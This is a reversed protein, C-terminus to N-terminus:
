CADHHKCKLTLIWHFVIQRGDKEYIPREGDINMFFVNNTTAQYTRILDHLKDKIDKGFTVVDINSTKTYAVDIDVYAIFERTSANIDHPINKVPILKMAIYPMKPQEGDPTEGSLVKEYDYIPIDLTKGDSDDINIVYREIELDFDYKNIGIKARIDNRPDYSEHTM